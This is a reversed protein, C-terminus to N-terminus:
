KSQTRKIMFKRADDDANRWDALTVPPVLKEFGAAYSAYGEVDKELLYFAIWRTRDRRDIDSWEGYTWIGLSRM